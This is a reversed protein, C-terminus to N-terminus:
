IEIEIRKKTIKTYVDIMKLAIKDWTYNELIFSRARDGMDKALLPDRLLSILADAIQEADIDVIKAVARAEPFNCGTTIVCPLGSAMGELVSM